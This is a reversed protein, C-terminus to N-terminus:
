RCLELHDTGPTTGCTGVKSLSTLVMNTGGVVGYGYTSSAGACYVAGGFTSSPTTVILSFQVTGTQGAVLAKNPYAHVYLIETEVHLYHEPFPPGPNSTITSYVLSITKGEISGPSLCNNCLTLSGTVPTGPCAALLKAEDSTVHLMGNASKEAQASTLCVARHNLASTTPSLLLARPVDYRGPPLSLAAANVAGRIREYGRGNYSASLEWPMSNPQSIGNRQWTEDIVTGSLSGFTRVTGPQCPNVSGADANSGGTGSRGGAGGSGGSAGAAGGTTGATGGTAGATGGTTGATGGTAGSTGGTAGAAGDSASADGADNTSGASGGSSSGSRGGAGVVGGTGGSATSGGGSGSRGSGGGGSKGGSGGGDAGGTSSAGGTGSTAGDDDGSCAFAIASLAIFLSSHSPKMALSRVDSIIFSTFETGSDAYSDNSVSLLACNSVLESTVTM